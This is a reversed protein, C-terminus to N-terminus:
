EYPNLLQKRTDNTSILITGERNWSTLNVHHGDGNNKLRLSYQSKVDKIGPWQKSADIDCFRIVTASGM